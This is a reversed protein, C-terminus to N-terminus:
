LTPHYLNRVAAGGASSAQTVCSKIALDVSEQWYDIAEELLQAKLRDEQSNAVSEKKPFTPLLPLMSSAQAQAYFGM